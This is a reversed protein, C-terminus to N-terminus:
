KCIARPERMRADTAMEALVEAVHDPEEIGLLKKAAKVEYWPRHGESEVIRRAHNLQAETAMIKGELQIPCPRFTDRSTFTIDGAVGLESRRDDCVIRWKRDPYNRSVCGVHGQPFCVNDVYWGGHRWRSYLPTWNEPFAALIKKEIM